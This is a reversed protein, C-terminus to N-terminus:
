FLRRSITIKEVEKTGEYIELTKADRYFRQVDFDDYLAEPGFEGHIKLAQGCVWVAMERTFYKAMANLVPDTDGRDVKWAAKYTINRGLEIKTAMEALLFQVDQHLGLPRGFMRRKQVYDLTKDLAGQALGIGQAAVMTRTCDFFHMLQHFGKGEEGILNECPVRVDSFSVETTESSRIGMKGTLKNVEVGKRDSEVLIMSHRKHREKREPATLCLAVMWDCAMGHTIFMKNGNIIYENGKRIATSKISAVDSGADPETYAGASIAKGKALLPLFRNKQEETGFFLINESGFTAAAIALGSGLDVRSVQEMILVVELFGLGAGGYERPIIVGVLGEQCAKEWIEKSYKEERDYEKAMPEIVEMAFRYAREQIHRQEQTLEFDM